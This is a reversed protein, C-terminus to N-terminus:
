TFSNFRYGSIFNFVTRAIAATLFGIAMGSIGFSQGLVIILLFYLGTQLVSGILIIKSNEKGLFESTQISSITLPIIAISLIQIPLISEHYEPLFTDVGYPVTVISIVALLIAAGLSLIKIKKNKKGEAEQPVLYTSLAKPLSELLFLFQVAFHYEGLISFGFLAGIVLKDGWNVFVQSINRSWMHLNFKIKSRLVSFEIKRNKMLTQLEKLIFLTGVFYGLLIGNIGFFSYLILSFVITITARLLRHKAYDSYRKKSNIGSIILMFLSMGLILLSVVVNQFIIYVILASIGSSILLLVFSAPFVNENKPEYVVIMTRLGFLSITAAVNAISMFYALEGYQTKELLSALFLLFVGLAISSTFNSTGLFLVDKIKKTFVM